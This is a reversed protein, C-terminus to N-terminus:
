AKVVTKDNQLKRGSRCDEGHNSFTKYITAFQCVLFLPLNTLHIEM